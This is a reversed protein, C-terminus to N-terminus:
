PATRYTPEMAQTRLLLTGGRILLAVAIALLATGSGQHLGAAAGLAYLGVRAAIGLLWVVATAKTGQAMARGDPGRWVRTTLAWLVGTVAGVALEAVFLLLGAQHHHPDIMSGSDRLAFVTLVVPILWWRRGGVATPRLQRVLVLGIVALIVLANELGSM